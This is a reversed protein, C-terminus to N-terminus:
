GARARIREAIADCEPFVGRLEARGRRRRSGHVMVLASGVRDIQWDPYSFGGAAAAAQGESEFSWVEVSCIQIEGARARTYHRVHKVRVGWSALDADMSAYTPAEPVIEWGPLEHSRLFAEHGDAAASAALLLAVCTALLRRIPLAGMLLSMSPVDGRTFPRGTQAV